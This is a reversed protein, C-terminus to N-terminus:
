IGYTVNETTWEDVFRINRLPLESRYSDLAEELTKFCEIVNNIRLVWFQTESSVHPLVIKLQGNSDTVKKFIKILMGVFTSDVFDCTSLDIILKKKGFLLNNEFEEWLPQADRLTAAVVDIKVVTIRKISSMQFEEM